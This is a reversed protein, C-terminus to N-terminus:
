NAGLELKFVTGAGTSGGSATTGYLSGDSAQLLAGSPGIGDSPSTGFSYLVTETGDATIKYLTGCGNVSKCNPNPSGGAATTGYFNGDSALVLAGSPRQGDVPSVGFSYLSTTVGSPTVKFVTGCGNPCTASPSGGDSTTGYLNGDSGEILSFLSGFYGKGLNGIVAVMFPGSDPPVVKFVSGYSSAGYLNGDRAQVLSSTVVDAGYGTVDLESERGGLTLSFVSSGYVAGYLLGDSAQIVGGHIPLDGSDLASWIYVESETGNPTIRYVSGSSNGGIGDGDTTGYFNGDNALILGATTGGVSNSSFSYLTTEEGLTTIRFVAGTTTGYLSGDPGQVLSGNPAGIRDAGNFSYLTIAVPMATACTVAIGTIDATGVTGSGNNVSCTQAPKAPQTGVTVSYTAGSDITTSFRAVGNATISLDDGGNVKLVLGTGTLGSVTVSISHAATGSASTGGCGVALTTCSAVAMVLILRRWAIGANQHKV